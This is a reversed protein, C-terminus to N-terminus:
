CIDRQELQFQTKYQTNFTDLVQQAQKKDECCLTYRKCKMNKKNGLLFYDNRYEDQSQPVAFFGTQTNIDLLLREETNGIFSIRIRANYDLHSYDVSICINKKKWLSINMGIITNFFRKLENIQEQNM